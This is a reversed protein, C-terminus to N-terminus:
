IYLPIKANYFFNLPMKDKKPVFHTRQLNKITKSSILAHIQSNVHITMLKKVYIENIQM